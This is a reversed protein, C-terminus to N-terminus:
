PLRVNLLVGFIYYTLGATGVAVAGLILLDKEGLLYIMLALYLMTAGIFSIIPLLIIYIITSVMVFIIKLWYIDQPKNAEQKISKKILIFSLLLMFTGTLVPFLAPSLALSDGHHLGAGYIIVFLSIALWIVAEIFNSKKLLKDM